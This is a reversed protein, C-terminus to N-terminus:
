YFATALRRRYEAAARSKPGMVGLVGVMVEKAQTGTANRDRGIISLCLECAEDFRNDAGLAEALKL